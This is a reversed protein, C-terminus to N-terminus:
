CSMRRAVRSALLRARAAVAQLELVVAESPPLLLETPPELEPADEVVLAEDERPPDDLEPAELLRPPLLLELEPDLLPTALPLELLLLPEVPISAPVRIPVQSRTVVGSPEVAILEVTTTAWSESVMVDGLKVSVAWRAPLTSVNLLVAPPVVPTRVPVCVAALKAV